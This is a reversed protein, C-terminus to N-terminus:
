KKFVLRLRLVIEREIPNLFSDYDIGYATRDMVLKANLELRDATENRHFVLTEAREIKKIKMRGRVQVHGKALITVSDISFVARPYKDVDFFDANRLHDDRQRNRTDISAVDVIFRGTGKALDAPVIADMEWKQFVGDVDGLRSAATFSVQSLGPDLKWLGAGEATSSAAPLGILACGLVLTSLRRSMENWQQIYSLMRDAVGQRYHSM